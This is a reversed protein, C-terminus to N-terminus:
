RGASHRQRDIASRLTSSRPPSAAQDYAHDDAFAADRGLFESPDRGDHAPQRLARWGTPSAANTLLSNLHWQAALPRSRARGRLGGRAGRRHLRHLTRPATSCPQVLASDDPSRPMTFRTVPMKVLSRTTSPGPEALALGPARPTVTARPSLPWREPHTAAGIRARRPVAHRAPCAVSGACDSAAIVILIWVASKAHTRGPASEPNFQQSSAKCRDWHALAHPPVSKGCHAFVPIKSLGFHCPAAQRGSLLAVRWIRLNLPWRCFLLGRWATRVRRVLTWAPEVLPHWRSRDGGPRQPQHRRRYRGAFPSRDGQAPPTSHTGAPHNAAAAAPSSSCRLWAGPRGPGAPQEHPARRRCRYPRAGALWLGPVELHQQFRGRALCTPVPCAWRPSTWGLLAADPALRM